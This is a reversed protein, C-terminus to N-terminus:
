RTPLIIWVCSWRLFLWFLRTFLTYCLPLMALRMHVSPTLVWLPQPLWRRCVGSEVTSTVRTDRHQSETVPRNTNSCSRVSVINAQM